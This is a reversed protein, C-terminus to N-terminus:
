FTQKGEWILALLHKARGLGSTTQQFVSIGTASGLRLDWRTHATQLNSAPPADTLREPVVLVQHDEAGGGGPQLGDVCELISTPSPSRCSAATSGRARRQLATKARARKVVTGGTQTQLTEEKSRLLFEEEEEEKKQSLIFM